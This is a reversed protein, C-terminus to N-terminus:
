HAPRKRKWGLADVEEGGWDQPLPEEVPAWTYHCAECYYQKQTVGTPFAIEVLTPIFFKRTTQPYEIQSSGCQPCCVANAMLGESMHAEKLFQTARDFDAEEVCIKHAALPKSMFWFKQMKTEDCLRAPIGADKLRQLVPQAHEKEHFTAVTLM